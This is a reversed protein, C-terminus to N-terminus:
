EWTAGDRYFPTLGMFAPVRLTRPRRVGELQCEKGGWEEFCGPQQGLEKVRANIPLSGKYLLISGNHGLAQHKHV